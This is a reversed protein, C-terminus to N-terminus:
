VALVCVTFLSVMFLINVPESRGGPVERFIATPFPPLTVSSEAAAVMRPIRLPASAARRSTGSRVRLAKHAGMGSHPGTQHRPHPM